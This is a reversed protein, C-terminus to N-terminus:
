APNSGGVEGDRSLSELDLVLGFKLEFESERGGSGSPAGRLLPCIKTDTLLTTVANRSNSLEFNAYLGYKYALM